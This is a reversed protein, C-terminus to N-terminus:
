LIFCIFLDLHSIFFSTLGLRPAERRRSYLEQECEDCREKHCDHLLCAKQGLQGPSSPFPVGLALEWDLPSKDDVTFVCTGLAAMARCIYSGSTREDNDTECDLSLLKLKNSKTTIVTLSEGGKAGIESTKLSNSM